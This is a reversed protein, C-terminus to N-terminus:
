KNFPDITKQALLTPRQLLQSRVRNFLENQFATMHCTKFSFYASKDYLKVIQFSIRNNQLYSPIPSMRFLGLFSQARSFRAGPQNVSNAAYNFCKGSSVSRCCTTLYKTTNLLFGSPPLVSIPQVYAGAFAQLKVYTHCKESRKKHSFSEVHVPPWWWSCVVPLTVKLSRKRLPPRPQQLSPCHKERSPDSYLTYAKDFGISDHM